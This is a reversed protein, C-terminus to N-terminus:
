PNCSAPTICLQYLLNTLQQPPPFPLTTVPQILIPPFSSLLSSLPHSPASLTTPLSFQPNCCLFHSHLPHSYSHSSLSPSTSLIFIYFSFLFLLSVGMTIFCFLVFFLFFFCVLNLFLLIETKPELEPTLGGSDLGQM